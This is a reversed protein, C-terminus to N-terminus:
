RRAPPRFPGHDYRPRPPGNESLTAGNVTILPGPTSTSLSTRPVCAGERASFHACEVRNREFYVGRWFSAVYRQFVLDAEDDTIAGVGQIGLHNAIGPAVSCNVVHVEDADGQWSLSSAGGRSGIIM